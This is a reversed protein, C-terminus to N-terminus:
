RRGKQAAGAESGQRRRHDPTSLPLQVFHCMEQLRSWIREGVRGKLHKGEAPEIGFSSYGDSAQEEGFLLYNTAILTTRNSNYRRAILEDLTDLEFPSGKGKGLEDIALIEADVLPQIVDLGSRGQAFGHRIEAFLFSIEVYRATAGMELTLHRLAACLLHTKGTGVPGSLVFGRTPKGKEYRHATTMAVDRARAQEENSPVLAEFTLGARAPLRAANFCALRALRRQCHCSRATAYGREDEIFLHGAGLCEGCSESCPCLRALAHEGTRDFLFGTGRCQACAARKSM